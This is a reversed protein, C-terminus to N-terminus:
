GKAKNLRDLSTQAEKARSDKPFKSLFEEYMAIAQDPKGTKEYCQALAIRSTRAEPNIELVARYAAAAEEFRNLARLSEARVFRIMTNPEAPDIAEAADVEKLAADPKKLNTLMVQAAGLLAFQQRDARTTAGQAQRYQAIADDWKEQAVLVSALTMHGWFPGDDRTIKLMAEGHERAKGYSGFLVGGQKRAQIQYQALAYRAWVHDPDIKVAKKWASEADGATEMMALMGADPQMNAMIARGHIFHVDPDKPHKEALAAVRELSAKADGKQRVLVAQALQLRINAPDQKLAEAISADAVPVHAALLAGDEFLETAWQQATREPAQSPALPAAPAPTSAPAGAPNSTAPNSAAAEGAARAQGCAVLVSLPVIISWVPLGHVRPM